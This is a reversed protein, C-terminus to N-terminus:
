QLLSITYITIHKHLQRDLESVQEPVKPLLMSDSPERAMNLLATSSVQKRASEHIFPHQSKDQRDIGRHERLLYSSSPLSLCLSHSYLSLSFIHVIM